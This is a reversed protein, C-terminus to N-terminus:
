WSLTCFKRHWASMRYGAQLFRSYKLCESNKAFNYLGDGLVSRFRKDIETTIKTTTKITPASAYEEPTYPFPIGQDMNQAAQAHINTFGARGSYMGSTDHHAWTAQTAAPARFDSGARPLAIPTSNIPGVTGSWGTSAYPASVRDQTVKQRSQQAQIEAQEFNKLRIEMQKMKDAMTDNEIKQQVIHLRRTLTNYTLTDVKNLQVGSALKSQFISLNLAEFEELPEEIIGYQDDGTAVDKAPSQIDGGTEGTPTTKHQTNAAIQERDQIMNDVLITMQAVLSNERTQLYGQLQSMDFVGKDPIGHVLESQNSSDLEKSTTNDMQGADTGGGPTKQGQLPQPQLPLEEKNNAGEQAKAGGGPTREIPM